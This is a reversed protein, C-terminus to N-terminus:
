SPKYSMLHKRFAGISTKTPQVIFIRLSTLITLLLFVPLLFVVVMTMLQNGYNLAAISGVPLFSAMIQDVLVNIYQVSSGLLIPFALVLFEKVYPNKFDVFPRFFGTNKSAIRLLPIL